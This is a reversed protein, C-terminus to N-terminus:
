ISPPARDSTHRACPASAATVLAGFCTPAVDEPARLRNIPVIAVAAAAHTDGDPADAVLTGITTTVPDHVDYGHVIIDGADLRQAAGRGRWVISDRGGHVVALSALTALAVALAILVSPAFLSRHM